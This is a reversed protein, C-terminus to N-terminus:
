LNELRYGRINQEDWVPFHIVLILDRKDRSCRNVAGAQKIRSYALGRLLHLWKWRRGIDVFDTTIQHEM